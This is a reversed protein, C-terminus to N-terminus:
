LWDTGYAVGRSRIKYTLKERGLESGDAAHIVLEMPKGDAEKVLFSYEYGLVVADPHVPRVYEGEVVLVTDDAARAALFVM